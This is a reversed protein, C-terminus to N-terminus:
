VVAFLFCVFQIVNVFLVLLIIKLCISESMVLIYVLRWM